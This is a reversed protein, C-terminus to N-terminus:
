CGLMERFLVSISVFTSDGSGPWGKEESMSSYSYYAEDDDWRDAYDYKKTTCPLPQTSTFTSCDMEEPVADGEFLKDFMSPDHVFDARPRECDGDKFQDEADKVLIERSCNSTSDVMEGYNPDEEFLDDLLPLNGVLDMLSPECPGAMLQVHMDTNPSPQLPVRAGPELAADEFLDNLLPLNRVVDTLPAEYCEAM